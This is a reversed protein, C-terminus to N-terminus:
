VVDVDKVDDRFEDRWRPKLRWHNFISGHGDHFTLGRPCLIITTGELNGQKLRVHAGRHHAFTHLPFGIDRYYHHTVAMVTVQLSQFSHCIWNLCMIHMFVDIYIYVRLYIWQIATGRSPFVVLTEWQRCSKPWANVTAVKEFEQAAVFGRCVWPRGSPSRLGHFEGQLPHTM